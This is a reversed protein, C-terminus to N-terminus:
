KGKQNGIFVTETERWGRRGVQGKGCHEAEFEGGEEKERKGNSGEGGWCGVLCNASGLGPAPALVPASFGTLIPASLRTLVPPSFGTLIPTTIGVWGGGLQGRGCGGGRGSGTQNLPRSGLLGDIM